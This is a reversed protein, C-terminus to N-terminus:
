ELIVTVIRAKDDIVRFFYVRDESKPDPQVKKLEKTIFSYGPTKRREIPLSKFENVTM